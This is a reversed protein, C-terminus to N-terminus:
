KIGNGSRSWASFDTQPIKEVGIERLMTVLQGRHYTGHNHVHLVIQYLPMTYAKGSAHTYTIMEQLNTDTRNVLWENWQLSQQQLVTCLDKLSGAFTDISEIVPKEDTIRKWWALEAMLMHHFTKYFSPFSSPIEKEQQDTPLELISDMLLKNAWIHYSSYQLLLEKM